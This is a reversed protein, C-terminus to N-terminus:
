RRAVTYMWADGHYEHTTVTARKMDRSVDVSFIPRPITGLSDILGHGRLRYFSRTDPTGYVALLVDGGSLWSADVNPVGAGTWLTTVTSDRLSLVDVRLSDTMVSKGWYLVHQGDPSVIFSWIGQFWRPAPYVRPVREGRRQVKM